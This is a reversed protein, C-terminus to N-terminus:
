APRSPRQRRPAGHAKVVAQLLAPISAQVAEVEVRLGAAEAAARTIPGLCLGRVKPAVAAWQAASFLGRFHDVTSSSSFSVGDISGAALAQALPAGDSASAVTRYFPLDACAVGAAQLGKPLIDRGQEARAILM